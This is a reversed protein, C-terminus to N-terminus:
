SPQMGDGFHCIKLAEYFNSSLKNKGGIPATKIKGKWKEPNMEDMEDRKYYIIATIIEMGSIEYIQKVTKHSYETINVSGLKYFIETPILEEFIRDYHCIRIKSSSLNIILIIPITLNKTGSALQGKFTEVIKDKIRNKNVGFSINTYKFDDEDNITKVEVLAREKNLKIEGDLRNPLLKEIKPELKVDFDNSLKAFIEVESLIAIEEEINFLKTKKMTLNEKKLIKFKNKWYNLSYAYEDIPRGFLDNIYLIKVTLQVFSTNPNSILLRNM